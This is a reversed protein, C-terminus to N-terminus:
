ADTFALTSDLPLSIIMETGEGLVSQVHITGHHIDIIKKVISLGLGSGGIDRTRAKDGKYFREFIHVQDEESIGIGTDTIKIIVHLENEQISIRIIGNDPTFKISNHLLNTWVQSLLDEDAVIWVELLDPDLHLQKSLWQPESALMVQKLQKDLRYRKPSFPHHESELSTLKLLNDSLKSLRISETEIIQLYRSREETTLEESQLARTFGRISTLPSQIEHSVNSIFTQRMQEIQNLEEAMDNISSAIKFFPNGIPNNGVNVKVKFNGKSIQRIADILILFVDERKSGFMKGILLVTFSMLLFGFIGVFLQKVYENTAAELTPFLLNTLWYALSWFLTIISLGFIVGLIHRRGKTM